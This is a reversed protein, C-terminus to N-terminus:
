CDIRINFDIRELYYTADQNHTDQVVGNNLLEEAESKSLKASYMLNEVLPKTDYVDVFYNGHQNYDNMSFTLIWVSNM